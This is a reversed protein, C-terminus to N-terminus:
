RALLRLAPVSVTPTLASAKADPAEVDGHLELLQYGSPAVPAIEAGASQGFEGFSGVPIPEVPMAKLSGAIMGTPRDAVPAAPVVVPPHDRFIAVRAHATSCLFGAGILLVLMRPTM